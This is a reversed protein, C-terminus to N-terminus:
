AVFILSWPRHKRHRFVYARRASNPPMDVIRANTRIPPIKRRPMHPRSTRETQFAIVILLFYEATWRGGFQARVHFRGACSPFSAGRGNYFLIM